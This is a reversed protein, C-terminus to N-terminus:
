SGAPHTNGFPDRRARFCWIDSPVAAAIILTQMVSCWLCVHGDLIEHTWAWILGGVGLVAWMWGIRVRWTRRLLGPLLLGTAAWLAGWLALPIGMTVSGPGSLVSRCNILGSVPCGVVQHDGGMSALYLGIMTAIVLAGIQIRRRHKMRADGGDRRAM